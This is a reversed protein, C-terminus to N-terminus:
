YATEPSLIFGSKLLRLGVRNELHFFDKGPLLQKNTKGWFFNCKIFLYPLSLIQYFKSM